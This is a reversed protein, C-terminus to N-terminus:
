QMQINKNTHYRDLSSVFPNVRKDMCLIEVIKTQDYLKASRLAYNDNVSPDIREDSIFRKVVEEHGNRCAENFAHYNNACPDVREDLLLRDVIEAFGKESAIRLLTNSNSIKNSKDHSLLLDVIEAYRNNCAIIVHYEYFKKNMKIAQNSLFIEVIEKHGRRIALGLAIKFIEYKEGIHSYVLEQVIDTFGRYCACRLMEGSTEFRSDCLLIRVIDINNKIIACFLADYTDGNETITPDFKKDNLIEKIFYSNNGSIALRFM